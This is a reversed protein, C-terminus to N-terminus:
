KRRAELQVRMVKVDARIDNLVEGMVGLKEEIKTLRKEHDETVQRQSSIKLEVRGDVFGEAKSLGFMVAIVTTVIAVLLMFPKKFDNGLVAAVPEPM